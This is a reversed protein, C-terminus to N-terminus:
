VLSVSFALLDLGSWLVSVELSDLDETWSLARELALRSIGFEIM